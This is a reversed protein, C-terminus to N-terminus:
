VWAAERQPAGARSPAPTAASGDVDDAGIEFSAMAALLQDAQERLAQTARQSEDAMSANEQTTRDLQTVAQGVQSVGARQEVSAQSIEAMVTSVRRIAGLVDDITTGARDVLQAGDNTKAVSSDILGRIDRAAEAARGALNRVETAVVAFGRGHENARAAEVSANLALINTQFAIDDILSVIDAIRTSSQQIDRMTTVVESFAEGAREAVGAAESAYRDGQTANDANQRVTSDLEEMSASTQELAAAQSQTRSALQRNDEDIRVSAAAVANASQRVGFVTERLTAATKELEHMISRSPRVRSTAVDLRGRGIAAALSRVDAPEAGLTRKLWLTLAVAIIGGLLLAAGCLAIMLWRFGAAIDRVIGAEAQNLTEQYDIFANISGLWDVFAPRAQELVVRQASAVDGNRRLELVRAMLPLTRAQIAEIDTFLARDREAVNGPEALIADMNREATEFDATLAEILSVVAPLEADDVLTADRVAIARDHVSGRMNIAYRQKVSNVDNIHTLGDDIDHVRWVGVATVILMLLLIVAFGFGLRAGLSMDHFIRKM